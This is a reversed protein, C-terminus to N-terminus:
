RGFTCHYPLPHRVQLFSIAMCIVCYSNLGFTIASNLERQSLFAKVVMVLSRLAPMRTLYGKIIDIAEVGDTNDIGIDTKFSGTEMASTLQSM